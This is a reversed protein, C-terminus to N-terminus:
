VGQKGRGLRDKYTELEIRGQFYESAAQLYGCGMRLAQAYQSQSAATGLAEDLRITKDPADHQLSRALRIIPDRRDYFNIEVIFRRTKEPHPNRLAEAYRELDARPEQRADILGEPPPDRRLLSQQRLVKQQWVSRFVNDMESICFAAAVPSSQMQMELTTPLYPERRGSEYVERFLFVDHYISCDTPFLPCDKDATEFIPKMQLDAARHTHWGLVFALKEELLDGPRRAPWAERFKTLLGPMYTGGSRTVGGLRTIDLHKGLCLKLARCIKPSHLALRACDDTVATHTINESM